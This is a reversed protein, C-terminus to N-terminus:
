ARPLVTSPAGATDAFIREFIEASARPIIGRQSDDFGDVGMMQVLNDPGM